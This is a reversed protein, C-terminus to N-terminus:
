IPNHLGRRGRQRALGRLQKKLPNMHWHCLLNPPEGYALLIQHESSVSVMPFRARPRVYFMRPNKRKSTACAIFIELKFTLRRREKAEHFTDVLSTRKGIASGRM